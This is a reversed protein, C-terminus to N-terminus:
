KLLVLRQTARTAPSQVSVLYVGAAVASGRDDRGDWVWLAAGPPHPGRALVRVLRGRVDLVELDRWTLASEVRIVTAPNFPNPAAQLRLGHLTPLPEAASTPGAQARANTIVAPGVFLGGDYFQISRVSVQTIQPILSAQFRLNYLIGPGPLSVGQCLLSHAITLSDGAADFRHFTNGCATLMYSGEQLSLPTRQLFTLAAPDYDIVIDYANFGKGPRTVRLHLEFVTGPTVVTDTPAVALFITDAEAPEFRARSGATAPTSGLLSWAVGAAVASARIWDLM